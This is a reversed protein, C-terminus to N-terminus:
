VTAGPLFSNYWASGNWWEVSLSSSNFRIQGKPAAATGRLDWMYMASNDDFSYSGATFDRYYVHTNGGDIGYTKFTEYLTWGTTSVANWTLSRLMYVRCDANITFTGADTTNVYSTCVLGTLYAPLNVYSTWATQDPSVGIYLKLNNASIRLPNVTGTITVTPTTARQATTGVPLKFNLTASTTNTLNAM